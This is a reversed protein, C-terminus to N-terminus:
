GEQLAGIVLHDVIHRDLVQRDAERDVPGPQDPGVARSVGSREVNCVKRAQGIEHHHGSRVFGLQNVHGIGGREMVAARNGKAIRAAVTNPNFQGFDRFLQLDALAPDDALAGLNRDEREARPQGFRQFGGVLELGFTEGGRNGVQPKGLREVGIQDALQHGAVLDYQRDFFARDAPEARM